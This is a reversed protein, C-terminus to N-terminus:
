PPWRPEPPDAAVALWPHAAAYQYKEALRAHHEIKALSTIVRERTMPDFQLVVGDGFVDGGYRGLEAHYTACQLFDSRRRGLWAVVALLVAALAIILLLTRLHFRPLRM